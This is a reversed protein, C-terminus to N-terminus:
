YQSTRVCSYKGPPTLALDIKDRDFGIKELNVWVYSSSALNISTSDCITSM